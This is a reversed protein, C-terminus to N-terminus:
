AMIGGTDPEIHLANFVTDSALQRAGHNLADFIEVDSWGLGRLGRLDEATVSNSDRVAKLVLKVLSKERDSLPMLDLNTRTAAVQEPTWGAMAILLRSNLDVCYTCAKGLSTLMRVVALLAFSLTPHQMYYGVYEWQQRLWIPNPSWIRFANPVSGLAAQIQAYIEAVEGTASEPSQTPMLSM